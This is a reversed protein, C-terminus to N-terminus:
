ASLKVWNQRMPVLQIILLNQNQDQLVLTLVFNIRLAFFISILCCPLLYSGSNPIVELFASKWSTGLYNTAVCTYMGEDEKTVNKLTVNEGFKRGSIQMGFPAYHRANIITYYSSNASPFGPETYVYKPPRKNWHLWKYFIFTLGFMDVCGFTVSEGVRATKNAPWDDLLRPKTIANEIVKLRFEQSISGLRNSVVCVYIGGDETVATKIRLISKTVNFRM